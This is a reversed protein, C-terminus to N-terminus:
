HNNSACLASARISQHKDPLWPPLGQTQVQRLLECVDPRNHCRAVTLPLNDLCDAKAAYVPWTLMMRCVDTHGAAAALALAMGGRSDARVGNVLMFRCAKAKGHLAALILLAGDYIDLTGYWLMTRLFHMEDASTAFQNLLQSIQIIGDDGPGLPRPIEPCKLIDEAAADAAAEAEAAAAAAAEAAAAKAYGAPRRSRDYPVARCMLIDQSEKQAEHVNM